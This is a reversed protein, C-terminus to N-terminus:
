AILYVKENLSLICLCFDVDILSRKQAEYKDVLQAADSKTLEICRLFIIYRM